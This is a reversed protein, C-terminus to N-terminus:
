DLYRRARKDPIPARLTDHLLSVTRASINGVGARRQGAFLPELNQRFSYIGKSASARCKCTSGSSNSRSMLSRLRDM